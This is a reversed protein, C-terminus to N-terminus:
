ARSIPRAVLQELARADHHHDVVDDAAEEAPEEVADAGVKAPDVVEHADDDARSDDGDGEADEGLYVVLFQAM